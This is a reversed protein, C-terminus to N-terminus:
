CIYIKNERLWVRSSETSHAASRARAGAVASEISMQRARKHEDRCRSDCVRTV